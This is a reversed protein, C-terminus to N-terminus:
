RVVADVDQGGYSQRHRQARLLGALHCAGSHEQQVVRVAGGILGCTTRIRRGSLRTPGASWRSAHIMPMGRMSWGSMMRTSPIAIIGFDIGLM